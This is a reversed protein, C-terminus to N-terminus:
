TKRRAQTAGLGIIGALLMWAAAPLPVPAIAVDDLLGGQHGSRGSAGTAAFSLRVTEDSLLTFNALIETWEGRPTDGSPGDVLADVYTESGIISYFIGNTNQSNDRPSYYFSLQYSGATLAIDQYIATNTNRNRSSGHSDLEVYHAGDIPDIQGITADTQVEIGPGSSVTWGPLQSWVDWSRGGTGSDLDAFADGFNGNIGPDLEFSGNVVTAASLPAAAFLAAALAIPKM